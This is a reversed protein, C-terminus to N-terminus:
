PYPRASPDTDAPCVRWLPPSPFRFCFLSFCQFDLNIVPVRSFAQVLSETIQERVSGPARNLPHDSIRQDGYIFAGSLCIEAEALPIQYLNDKRRGLFHFNQRLVDGQINEVLVTIKQDDVFGLAHHYMRSGTMGASGQDISDHVM